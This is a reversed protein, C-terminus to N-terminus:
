RSRSPMTPTGKRANTWPISPNALSYDVFELVLNGTFDQIPSIDEFIERLGHNLFWEYSSRQVEILNPLELVQKIRAYSRRKRKGVVVDSFM